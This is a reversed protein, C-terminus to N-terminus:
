LAGLSDPSAANGPGSPLWFLMETEALSLALSVVLEAGKEFSIADTAQGSLTGERLPPGLRLPVMNCCNLQVSHLLLKHM